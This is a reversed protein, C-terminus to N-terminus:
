SVILRCVATRRSGSSRREPDHFTDIEVFGAKRMMGASAQNEEHREIYIESFGQRRLEEVAARLLRSGLGKGARERHVVAECVYGHACAIRDQAQYREMSRAVMFTVFGALRGEEEALVAQVRGQAIDALHMSVDAEPLYNWLNTGHEFIFAKMALIDAAMAPRVMIKGEVADERDEIRLLVVRNM